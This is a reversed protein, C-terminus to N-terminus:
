SLSYSSRDLNASVALIEFYGTQVEEEFEVHTIGQLYAAVLRAMPEAVVLAITQDRHRKLVSRLALRVRDIAEEITEGQPPCVTRPDDLWQRYVKYNRRRIEEYQLGQWLGQDLNRLEDLQRPRVGARASIYAATQVANQSPGSYVASLGANQLETALQVAEDTGRESLPLDLIGQVRTQEDYSTAGPRVLIVQVSM